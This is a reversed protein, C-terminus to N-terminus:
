ENIRKGITKKKNSYENLLCDKLDEIGPVPQISIPCALKFLFHDRSGYEPLKWHLPLAKMSKSQLTKKIRERNGVRRM